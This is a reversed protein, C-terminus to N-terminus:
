SMLILYKFILYERSFAQMEGDEKVIIVIGEDRLEAIPEMLVPGLGSSVHRPRTHIPTESVSLEGSAIRRQSLSLAYSPARSSNPSPDDAKRVTIIVSPDDRCYLQWKGQVAKDNLMRVSAQMSASHIFFAHSQVEGDLSLQRLISDLSIGNKIVDDLTM